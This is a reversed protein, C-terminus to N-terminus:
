NIFLSCWHKVVTTGVEEAEDDFLVHVASDRNARLIDDVFV